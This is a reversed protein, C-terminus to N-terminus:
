LSETTLLKEAEPDVWAQLEWYAVAAETSRYLEYGHTDPTSGDPTLMDVCWDVAWRVGDADVYGGHESEQKRVWIRRMGFTASAAEAEYTQVTLTWGKARATELSEAVASDQEYGTPLSITLAGGSAPLHAGLKRAQALTFGVIFQGTGSNAYATKLKVDYMCPAGLKDVSPLMKANQAEFGYIVCRSKLVDRNNYDTRAFLLFKDATALVENEPKKEVNGIYGGNVFFSSGKISLTMKGLVSESSKVSPSFLAAGPVNDAAVFLQCAFNNGRYAGIYATRGADVRLTLSVGNYLERTYLDPDIYQTGTSELFEARLYGAPFSSNVGGGLLGLASAARNFTATLLAADDDVEVTSTPATFYGQTGAEVTCIPLGDPTTVTCGAASTVAYMKGITTTRKM